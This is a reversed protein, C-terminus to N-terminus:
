ASAAPRRRTANLLVAGLGMLILVSPEPVQQPDSFTASFHLDRDHPTELIDRRYPNEDNWQSLGVRGGRGGPGFNTLTTQIAWPADVPDNPLVYFFYWTSPDLILGGTSATVRHATGATTSELTRLDTEFMVSTAFGANTACIGMRYELGAPAGPDVLWFSFQDIQRDPTFTLVEGFVRDFALDGGAVAPLTIESAHTPTPAVALLACALGSCALLPHRMAWRM